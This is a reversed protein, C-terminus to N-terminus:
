GAGCRRARVLRSSRVTRGDRTRVVLVVRRTRAVRVRVFSRPGLLKARRHGGVRVVVSRVNARRVGRIRLRVTRAASCVHGSLAVKAAYV